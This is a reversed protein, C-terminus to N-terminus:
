GARMVYCRPAGHPPDVTRTLEFGFRRYLEVNRPEATDLSLLEGKAEDLARELLKRGLGRGQASPRVGVITLWFHPERPHADDVRALAQGARVLRRLEPRGPSPWLSRVAFSLGRAVGLPHVRPPTMVLVGDLSPDGIAHIIAKSGIVELLTGFVGPLWRARERRDPLVWAYIPDDVMAEALVAAAEKLRPSGASSREIAGTKM